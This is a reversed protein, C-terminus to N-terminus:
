WYREFFEDLRDYIWGFPDSFFEVISGGFTELLELPASLTRWLDDWFVQFTEFDLLGPLTDNWFKDWEVTLWDIGAQADEILGVVWQKAVEIWGKVTDAVGSWWAEIIDWVFMFKDIFWDWIENFKNIAGQWWEVISRWSFIEQLSELLGSYWVALTGIWGRVDDLWTYLSYFWDGLIDPVFSNDWIASAITYCWLRIQHVVSALEYFPNM